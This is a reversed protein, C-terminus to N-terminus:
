VMDSRAAEDRTKEYLGLSLLVQVLPKLSEM